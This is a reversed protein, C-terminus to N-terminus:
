LKEGDEILKDIKVEFLMIMSRQGTSFNNDATLVLSQKGNPLVPGLAMGELNDLRRFGPSMQNKIDDLDLILKKETNKANEIKDDSMGLMNEANALNVLFIRSTLRRASNDWSRELTLLIHENLALVEVLGNDPEDELEYFYQGQEVFKGGVSQYKVLRVRDVTKKSGRFFSKTFRQDQQLAAENGTFLFQKDPTLSLSEFSKNNQLGSQYYSYTCKEQVPKVPQADAVIAGQQAGGQQPGGQQPTGQQGRSSRSSRGSRIPKCKKETITRPRFAIDIPITDIEKGKASFRTLFDSGGLDDMESSVIMDGNALFDFGEPDMNFRTANGSRRHSGSGRNTQPKSKDFKIMKDETIKLEGEKDFSYNYVYIRPDGNFGRDDSLLYAKKTEENFRLASLGGVRINGNKFNAESHINYDRYLKLYSNYKSHKQYKLDGKCDNFVYYFANADSQNIRGRVYKNKEDLENQRLGFYDLLGSNLGSKVCTVYEPNRLNQSTSVSTCLQYATSKQIGYEVTTEACKKFSWSNIHDLKDQYETCFNLVKEMGLAEKNDKVCDQFEPKYFIVRFDMELCKDQMLEIGYEPANQEVCGQTYKNNLDTCLKFAAMPDAKHDLMSEMCGSFEDAAVKQKVNYDNCETWADQSRVYKRADNWCQVKDQGNFNTCINIKDYDSLGQAPSLQRICKDFAYTSVEKGTNPDLCVKPSVTRSISEIKDVCKPVDDSTLYTNKWGQACDEAIGTDYRKYPKVKDLCQFYDNWKVYNIDKSNWSMKKCVWDDNDYGAAKFKKECMNLVPAPPVYPQQSPCIYLQGTYSQNVRNGYKDCDYKAYASTTVFLLMLVNTLKM